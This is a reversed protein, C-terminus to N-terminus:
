AGGRASGSADSADRGADPEYAPPTGSRGTGRPGPDTQGPPVYRESGGTGPGSASENPDPGPTGADRGGRDSSAGGGTTATNDGPTDGLVQDRSM